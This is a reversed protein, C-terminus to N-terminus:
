GVTDAPAPRELVRRRLKAVASDPSSLVPADLVGRVADLARATSFHALMVAACGALGVAAEALLRNHTEADGARLAAMAEPVCVTKLPVSRGSAAALAHFEAEMPPASPAFTALMGVPGGRDLAAEFMSENPKLVPVPAARAAAEIAAGFASCTFLVGAAGTEVAYAALREFRRVMAADLRGARGLDPALSDDLLNYVEVEPWGRTFAAAVPEIAVPTAHILTIRRAM